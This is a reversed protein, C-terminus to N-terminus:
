RIPRGERDNREVWWIAGIVIIAGVANAVLDLANNAYDGVSVDSVSAGILEAIEVVAGGGMVVLFTMVFLMPGYHFGVGAWRKMAEWAIIVMAGSAVAHFFKDYAIPGIFDATYLPVGDVLFVGGVMNGLGVLSVAWLAYVPWRAWRHLVAFLIFLGVNIGTYLGTLPSDIVQGYIFLAVTYVVTFSIVSIVACPQCWGGHLRRM